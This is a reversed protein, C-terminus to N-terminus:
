SFFYFPLGNSIVGIISHNDTLNMIQKAVSIDFNPQKLSVIVLDQKVTLASHNYSGVYRFNSSPIFVTENSFKITLGVETMQKLNLSNERGIISVNHGANVLRYAFYAGLSGTGGFITIQM